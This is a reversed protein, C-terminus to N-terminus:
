HLTYLPSKIVGIKSRMLVSYKSVNGVAACWTLVASVRQCGIVKVSAM